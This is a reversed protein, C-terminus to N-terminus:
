MGSRLLIKTLVYTLLAVGPLTIVWSALILKITTWRVRKPHEGIGAGMLTSTNVQTISVPGGMLTSVIVVLSSLSYSIFCHYDKLRYLRRGLTHLINKGGLWLGIPMGSIVLLSFWFPITPTQSSTSFYLIIVGLLKQGDNAGQGLSLFFLGLNSGKKLPNHFRFPLNRGWYHFFKLLLIGGIIGLLPTFLLFLIVKMVGGFDLVKLGESALAGGIFGGLLSHSFSIPLGAYWGLSKWLLVSFLIVMIIQSSFFGEKVLGQSFLRSVEGGLVFPGLTVGLSTLFLSRRLPYSRSFVLPATLNAGEQTGLTFALLWSLLLILRESNM